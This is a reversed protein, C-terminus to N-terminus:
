SVYCDNKSRYKRPVTVSNDCSRPITLLAWHIAALGGYPLHSCHSPLSLLFRKPNTFKTINKVFFYVSFHIWVYSTILIYYM